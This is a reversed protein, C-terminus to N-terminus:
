AKTLKNVCNATAYFAYIILSTHTIIIMLTIGDANNSQIEIPQMHMTVLTYIIYKLQSTPRASHSTHM